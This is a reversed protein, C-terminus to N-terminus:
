EWVMRTVSCAPLEIENTPEIERVPPAASSYDNSPVVVASEIKTPLRGSVLGSVSVKKAEASANHIILTTTNEKQFQVAEVDYYGEETTVSSSVWKAGDVKLRQYM